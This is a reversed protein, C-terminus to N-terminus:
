VRHAGGFCGVSDRHNRSSPGLRSLRSITIPWRMTTVAAITYYPNTLDGVFTVSTTIPEGGELAARIVRSFDPPIIILAAADRNRLQAEAGARDTVRSIKLLPSGNKYTLGRM